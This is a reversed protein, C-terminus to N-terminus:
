RHLPTVTSPAASNAAILKAARNMMGEWAGTSRDLADPTMRRCFAPFQMERERWLELALREVEAARIM